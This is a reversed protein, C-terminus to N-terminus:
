RSWGDVKDNRFSVLTSGYWWTATTGWTLTNTRTHDPTGWSAKVQAPSMGFTIKGALIADKIEEPLSANWAVYAEQRSVLAADQSEGSTQNQLPQCGTLVLVAITAAAILRHRM